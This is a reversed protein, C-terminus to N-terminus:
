NVSKYEEWVIEKTSYINGLTFWLVAALVGYLIVSLAIQYAVFGQPIFSLIMSVWLVVILVRMFVSFSCLYKQTSVYKHGTKITQKPLPAEKVGLVDNLNQSEM